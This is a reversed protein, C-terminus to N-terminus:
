LIQYRHFSIISKYLDGTAAYKDLDVVKVTDTSTGTGKAEFGFSSLTAIRRTTITGNKKWFTVVGKAIAKTLRWAEKLADSFSLGISRYLTWAKRMVKSKIVKANM